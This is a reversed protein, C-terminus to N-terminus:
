LITIPMQALIPAVDLEDNLLINKSRKTQFSFNLATAIEERQKKSFQLRLRLCLFDSPNLYIGTPLETLVKGEFKSSFERYKYPWQGNEMHLSFDYIFKRIVKDEKKERSYTIQSPLNNQFEFCGCEGYNNWRVEYFSFNAKREIGGAYYPLFEFTFEM